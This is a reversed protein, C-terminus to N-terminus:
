GVDGAELSSLTKDLETEFITQFLAQIQKESVKRPDAKAFPSGGTPKPASSVAIEPLDLKDLVDAQDFGADILMKAATVTQVLLTGEAAVDKPSPDDYDFELGAGSTGYMPLLKTNLARKIRDLRPAILWRAFVVEAAEANARNVDDVAGLMPKPFGFAERIIERNLHRMAEFQMDRQTYKRDVWKGHELLAVRHSKAVGKHQEDWRALMEEFEADSLRRDVEIIGGPEASNRFFAANWEASYRESDIDVLISQIPGLGRYPDLPNPRKLQIVENTEWPVKQGDPSTYVWGRIFENPDPVPQVNDPRVPWLELPPGIGVNSRAAYWITEGVLDLHQQIAEIFEHQDYHPNPKSWLDLAPHSLVEVREEGPQARRYLHWDVSATAETLKDVIAFITGVSGYTRLFTEASRGSLMNGLNRVGRGVYAPGQNKIITRLFSKM